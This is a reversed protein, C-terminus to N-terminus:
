GRGCVPCIGISEQFAELESVAAVVAAGAAPLNRQIEELKGLVGSVKETKDSLNEIEKVDDLLGLVDVVCDENVVSHLETLKEGISTSISNIDAIEEEKQSLDWLTDTLQKIKESASETMDTDSLESELEQCREVLIRAEIIRGRMEKMSTMTIGINSILEDATKVGHLLDFEKEIEILTEVDVAVRDAVMKSDALKAYRGSLEILDTQMSEPPFGDLNEQLDKILFVIDKVSNISIIEESLESGIGELVKLDTDMSPVFGELYGVRREGESLERQSSKLEDSAEKVRRKATLIAQDMSSLDAINNIAKAVQGPTDNLLFFMDKQPQMNQDGMNTVAQVQEPVKGRLGSLREGNVEYWNNNGSKVRAIVNGDAFHVEARSEKGPKLRKWPRPNWPTNFLVWYVAWFIASKGEDSEGSIVNFGPSLTIDTDLHSRINKLVVRKIYSVTIKGSSKM